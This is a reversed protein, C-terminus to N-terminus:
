YYFWSVFTDFIQSYVELENSEMIICRDSLWLYSSSPMTGKHVNTQLAPLLIENTKGDMKVDNGM